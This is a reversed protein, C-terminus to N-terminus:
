LIATLYLYIIPFLKRHSQDFLSSEFNNVLKTDGYVNRYVLILRM